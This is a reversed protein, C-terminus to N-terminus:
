ESKTLERKWNEAGAAEKRGVEGYYLFPKNHSAPYFPPIKKSCVGTLLSCITWNSYGLTLFGKTENMKPENGKGIKLGM